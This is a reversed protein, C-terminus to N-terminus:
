FKWGWSIRFSPPNNFGALLNGRDYGGLEFNLETTKTRYRVLLSYHKRRQLLDYKAIM